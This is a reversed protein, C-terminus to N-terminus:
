SLKYKGLVKKGSPVNFIELNNMAKIMKMKLLNKKKKGNNDKLFSVDDQTLVALHYNGPIINEFKFEGDQDSYKVISLDNDYKGADNLSLLKVASKYQPKKGDPSYVKGSIKQRKKLIIKLSKTMGPFANDIKTVNFREKRGDAFLYFQDNKNYDKSIMLLEFKGNEDADSMRTFGM